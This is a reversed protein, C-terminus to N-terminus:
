RLWGPPVGAKRAEEEIDEIQKKYLTVEAQVREMESLAKQRDEGIKARQYPDDRNVFDTSLANIRSQLAEAFAESRRLSERAGMIRQRWWTEDKEDEQQGAPPKPEEGPKQESGAAPPEAGAPPVAAASAPKQASAPLDKNTLVKPAAKTAKRREQEKRAVEGLAPKQGLAPTLLGLTMVLAGASLALRCGRASSLHFM